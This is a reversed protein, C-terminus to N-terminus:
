KKPFFEPESNSSSFPSFPYFFREDTGKIIKGLNPTPSFKDAARKNQQVTNTVSFGRARAVVVIAFLFYSAIKSNAM